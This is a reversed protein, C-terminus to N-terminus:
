KTRWPKRGTFAGYLMACFIVWYDSNHIPYGVEFLLRDMCWWVVLGILADVVAGFFRNMDM